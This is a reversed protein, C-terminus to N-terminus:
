CNGASHIRGLVQPQPAGSCAYFPCLLSGMSEGAGGLRYPSSLWQVRLAVGPRPRGRCVSLCALRCICLVPEPTSSQECEQWFCPLNVSQRQFRERPRRPPSASASMSRATAEQGSGGACRWWEVVAFSAEACLLAEMLRRHLTWPQLLRSIEDAPAPHRVQRAAMRACRETAQKFLQQCHKERTKQARQREWGGAQRVRDPKLPTSRRISRGFALGPPDVSPGSCRPNCRRRKECSGPGPHHCPPLCIAASPSHEALSPPTFLLAGLTSTPLFRLSLLPRIRASPEAAPPPAALPCPLKPFKPRTHSHSMKSLSASCFPPSVAVAVSLSHRRQVPRVHRRSRGAGQGATQHM